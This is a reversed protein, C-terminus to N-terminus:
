RSQGKVRFIPVSQGRYRKVETAQEERMRESVLRWFPRIEAFTIPRRDCYPVGTCLHDQALFAARGARIRHMIRLATAATIAKEGWTIMSKRNGPSWTKRRPWPWRGDRRLIPIAKAVIDRHLGTARCVDMVSIPEHDWKLRAYALMKGYRDKARM